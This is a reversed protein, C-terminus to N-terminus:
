KRLFKWWVGGFVALLLLGVALPWPAFSTSTKAIPMLLPKSNVNLLQSSSDSTVSSQVKGSNLGENPALSYNITGIAQKLKAMLFQDGSLKAKQFEADLLNLKDGSLKGLNGLAEAAIKKVEVDKSETLLRSFLELGEPISNYACMNLRISAEEREIDSESTLGSDIKHIFESRFNSGVVDNKLLLREASAWTGSEDREISFQELISRTDADIKAYTVIALVNQRVLGPHVKALDLLDKKYPEIKEQLELQKTVRLTSPKNIPSGDAYEFQKVMTAIKDLEKKIVMPDKISKFKSINELGFESSYSISLFGLLLVFSVIWNKM